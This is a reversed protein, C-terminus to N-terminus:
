SFSVKLERSNDSDIELHFLCKDGKEHTNPSSELLPPNAERGQTCNRLLSEKHSNHGVEFHLPPVVSSHHGVEQLPPAVSKLQPQRRKSNGGEVQRLGEPSTACAGKSSEGRGLTIFLAARERM